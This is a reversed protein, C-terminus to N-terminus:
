SAHLDRAHKQQKQQHRGGGREAGAVACRSGGVRDHALIAVTPVARPSIAVGAIHAYRHDNRSVRVEAGAAVFPFAIAAVPFDGPCAGRYPQRHIRMRVVAGITGPPAAIAAEALRVTSAFFDDHGGISEENVRVEAATPFAHATEADDARGARTHLNRLM